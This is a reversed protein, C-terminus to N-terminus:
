RRRVVMLLGALMGAGALAGLGGYLFGGNADSDPAPRGPPAGPTATPRPPLTSSPTVTPTDTATPTPTITPTPTATPTPSNTPTATPTPTRSATPTATLALTAPPRTPPIPTPTRSATPPVPTAPPLSPDIILSVADLFIMSGPASRNHDVKVFVTITSSKAYTSVDVNVDPPPYNLCRGDGFHMPGWVVTPALPDTGGTPDIGLQRGFSDTPNSPAAWGISAKYGVGPTVGGVQRFFGAVYAGPSDIRLSASGFSSHSESGRVPTFSASGALIYSSWGAPTNGSFQEWDCEILSGGLCGACGGALASIPLESATFCSVLLLLGLRALFVETLRM